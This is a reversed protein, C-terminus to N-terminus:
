LVECSCSNTNNCLGNCSTIDELLKQAEELENMEVLYTIVNIASWLLDRKYSLSNNSEKCMNYNQSFIDQCIKVFCKKLNCIGFYYIYESTIGGVEPNINIIEEINVEQINHYFKGNKYYYPKSEDLSITLKNIIYFGDGQYTFYIKDEKNEKIKYERYNKDFYKIIFIQVGSFDCDEIIINCDIDNKINYM